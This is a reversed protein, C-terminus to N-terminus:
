QVKAEGSASDIVVSSAEGDMQVVISGSTLAVLPFGALPRGYANFALNATGNFEATSVTVSSDLDSLACAYQQGPRYPHAVNTMQYSFPSLTFTITAQCSNLIAARRAYNFDGAIRRAVAESRVRASASVFQPAAVASLIGVILVTIVLDVLTVGLPRKKRCAGRQRYKHM